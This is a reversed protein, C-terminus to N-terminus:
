NLSLGVRTALQTAETAVTRRGCKVVTRLIAHADPRYQMDEPAEREATHLLLLTAAYDHRQEYGKAQDVLFAVRREISPSSRHDIQEALRLAEVVDGAEIEVSVAYMAVNTPGFATWLANCEGTRDALPAAERLRSHATWTDGQRAVAAAGLLLLAGYIAATEAGGEAILPRLADAARMAVMEADEPRQM